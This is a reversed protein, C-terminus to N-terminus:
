LFREEHEQQEYWFNEASHQGTSVIREIRVHRNAAIVTVLEEALSNPLDAFLNNM